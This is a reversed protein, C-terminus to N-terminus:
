SVRECRIWYGSNLYPDQIADIIPQVCWEFFFMVCVSMIFCFHSVFLTYIYTIYLPSILWLCRKINYLHQHMVTNHYFHLCRLFDYIAEQDHLPVIRTHWLWSLMGEFYGSAEPGSWYSSQLVQSSGPKEGTQLVGARCFGVFLVISIFSCRWFVVDMWTMTRCKVHGVTCLVACSLAVRDYMACLCWWYICVICAYLRWAELGSVPYLSPRSATVEGLTSYVPSEKPAYEKVVYLARLAEELHQESGNKLLVHALQFSLM